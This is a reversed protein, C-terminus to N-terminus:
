DLYGPGDLIRWEKEYQWHRAKTLVIKTVEKMGTEEDNAWYNVDPFEDDDPYNVPKAWELINGPCRNFKICFDCHSDSYHSWMLIDRPEESFCCIGFSQLAVRQFYDSKEKLYLEKTKTNAVIKSLLIKTENLSIKQHRAEFPAMISILEKDSKFEMEKRVRCDFPDNFASSPAYYIENNALMSLTRDSFAMYKYLYKVEPNLMKTNIKCAPALSYNVTEPDQAILMEDVM